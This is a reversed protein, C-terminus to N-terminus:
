SIILALSEVHIEDLFLFCGAMGGADLFKQENGSDSKSECALNEKVNESNKGFKKRLLFSYRGPKIEQWNNVILIGFM